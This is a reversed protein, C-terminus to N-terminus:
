DFGAKVAPKLEVETDRIRPLHHEHVHSWLEAAHTTDLVSFDAHPSLSVYRELVENFVRAPMEYRSMIDATRASFIHNHHNTDDEWMYGEAAGIYRTNHRLYYACDLSAMLCADFLIGQFKRAGLLQALEWCQMGNPKHPVPAEDVFELHDGMGHGGYVLYTRQPRYHDELFSSLLKKDLTKLGRRLPKMTAEGKDIRAIFSEDRTVALMAFDTVASVRKMQQLKWFPWAATDGTGLATCVMLIRNHAHPVPAKAHVAPAKGHPTPPKNAAPAPTKASAQRVTRRLM